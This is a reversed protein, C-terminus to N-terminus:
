PSEDRARASTGDRPAVAGQLLSAPAALAEVPPPTPPVTRDVFRRALAPFYRAVAYIRPHIVRARRRVYADRVRQALVGPTGQPMLGVPGRKGGAAEFAGQALPTDVPGPYVTIV